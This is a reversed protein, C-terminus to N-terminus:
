LKSGNINVVMFFILQIAKAIITKNIAEQVSSVTSGVVSGRSLNVPLQNHWSVTVPEGACDNVIVIEFNPSPSETLILL